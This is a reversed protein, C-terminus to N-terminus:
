DPRFGTVASLDSQSPGRGPLVFGLNNAVQRLNGPIGGHIPSNVVRHPGEATRMVLTTSGGGDLNLADWAGVEQFVAALEALTLGVATGPQRGDAVILWLTRGARDTGVATRPNPGGFSTAHDADDVVVRGDDILMRFGPIVHWVGRSELPPASLSVRGDRSVYMAGYDKVATSFVRGEVAALGAVDMPEGTRARLPGFASTNVALDVDRRRAFELTTECLTEFSQGSPASTPNPETLAFAVGTAALDITVVWLRQPRPQDHVRLEVRVAPAFASLTRRERPSALWARAARAAEVAGGASRRPEGPAVAPLALLLTLAIARRTRKHTRM